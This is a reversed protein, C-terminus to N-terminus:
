DCSDQDTEIRGPITSSRQRPSPPFSPPFCFSCVKMQEIRAKLQSTVEAARKWNEVPKGQEDADGNAGGGPRAGDSPAGKRGGGGGNVGDIGWRESNEKEESPSGLGGSWGRRSPAPRSTDHRELSTSSTSATLNDRYIGSPDDDLGSARMRSGATDANNNGAGGIRDNPGSSSPSQSDGASRVSRNLERKLRENERQLRSVGQEAAEADSRARVLQTEKAKISLVDRTHDEILQANSHQLEHIQSTLKQTTSRLDSITDQLETHSSRLSALEALDADSLSPQQAAAPRPPSSLTSASPKGLPRGALGRNTPKQNTPPATIAQDDESHPTITRRPSTLRPAPGAGPLKSKPASLGSTKPLTGLKSPIGRGAPKSPGPSSTSSVPKSSQPTTPRKTPPKLGPAVKKTTAPRKQTTPVAKPAAVPKPKDKAKVVAADHYEKIKDKRINDISEMYPAMAREGMIKMLTGLVEAGGTRTAETSETLLKTAVGAISKTEEKSPADRTTRLSRILLKLTEAKVQPNKHKLFELIDELCDSLSTSGVIADLAQGLPDALKKDKLRELVPAMVRGRYKAFSRQLGKALCEICNAATTVCQVNADKMTKALLGVIEDFHGDKIRPTNAAAYLADLADKRDKWKSSAMSESFDAPAKGIVDVPEALDFAGVEEVPEDFGEEEAAGGEEQAAAAKEAAAQQSRQLRDQKPPPQAKVGEFLKELDQQQVPKLEDWFLPKMAERLWRYLEEALKSAEARVNKDAHGFMRPLSKLAPKPEVIKVGYAHYLATLAALTSAVIKPLKNSLGALIDDLIPDAKDLEVYLLLAEM